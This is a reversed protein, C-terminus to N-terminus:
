AGLREGLRRVWDIANEPAGAGLLIEGFLDRGVHEGLARYAEWQNEGYLQQATSEHPFAPQERRYQKLYESENGTMSLKIYLLRGAGGGPYHIRTVIFHANCLGDANPRLDALDPEIRVGLDIWAMRVLTLLGHFYHSPDCEGDIAIITHCRRRLLEYVGLNEIHGGDSVNVYATNESMNGSLERLFYLPAAPLLQLAGLGATASQPKRLWYGLRINLMALLVTYRRATLAGMHPSAAAGSIAMATGLDLNSDAAQWDATPYWGTLASGCFHKSFLFLDADRGRLGPHPSGPVNLAANILHVPGKVPRGADANVGTLPRGDHHEVSLGDKGGSVLYAAALRDRYYRQLSAFNLNVGLITALLLAAGVTPPLWPSSAWFWQTIAICGLLAALFFLPGALAMSGLLLRGALRNPGIAIASAGLVVPLLAAAALWLAEKGAVMQSLAPLAALASLTLALALLGGALRALTRMTRRSRVLAYLLASVGVSAWAWNSVRGLTGPASGAVGFDAPFAAVLAAASLLLFPLVLLLTAFVGYLLGFGLEFVTRLGGQSLYKSHNRLHRVVTSEGDSAAGFPRQGPALGVDPDPDDVVTNIFSGLYGGGSVTSLFDVDQLVGKRALAQVVGLAFTSSRIGGGSLALGVADQGDDANTRHYHQRRAKVELAEATNIAQITAADLGLVPVIGFPIADLAKRPVQLQPLVGPSQPSEEGVLRALSDALTVLKAQLAKLELRFLYREDVSGMRGTSKRGHWRATFPRVDRNLSEIVISACHRSGPDEGIATRALKFFQYVSELAAEEEGERLPLEQTTIRTRLEVLLRWAVACDDDPRVVTASPAAASTEDSM